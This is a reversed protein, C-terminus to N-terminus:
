GLPSTMQEATEADKILCVMAVGSDEFVSYTPFEFVVVVVALLSFIVTCTHKTSMYHILTNTKVLVLVCSFTCAHHGAIKSTRQSTYVLHVHHM